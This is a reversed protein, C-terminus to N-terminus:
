SQPPQYGTLSAIHRFSEKTENRVDDWSSYLEKAGGFFKHNFERYLDEAAEDLEREAKEQPSEPKRFTRDRQEMTDIIVEMGKYTEKPLMEGVVVYKSSYKCLLEIDFHPETTYIVGVPPLGNGDWEIDDGGENSACADFPNIPSVANLLDHLDDYAKRVESEGLTGESVENRINDPADCFNEVDRESMETALVTEQKDNMQLELAELNPKWQKIDCGLMDISWCFDNSEYSSTEGDVYEIILPLGDAVPQKGENKRWALSKIKYDPHIFGAATKLNMSYFQGNIASGGVLCASSEEGIVNLIVDDKNLDFGADLFQKVTIM